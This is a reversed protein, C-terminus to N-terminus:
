AGKGSLIEPLDREREPEAKFARVREKIHTVIKQRERYSDPQKTLWSLLALAATIAADVSAPHAKVTGYMAEFLELGAAKDEAKLDGM